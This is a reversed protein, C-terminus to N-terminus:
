KGMDYVEIKTIVPANGFTLYMVPNTKLADIMTDPIIIGKGGWLSYEFTQQDKSITKEADMTGIILSGVKDENDVEFTIKLCPKSIKSWDLELFSQYGWSNFTIMSEDTSETTQVFKEPEEKTVANGDIGINTGDNKAWTGTWTWVPVADADIDVPTITATQKGTTNEIDETNGSAGTISNYLEAVDSYLMLCDNRDFYMGPTDWLVPLCGHAAAIQMVDTLWDIVGDKKPNCVGFEGVIVGYGEDTFRTLKDFNAETTEKDAETYEGGEVGDGCFEWPTYYHVSVSLKTNANEEIDVPMQFKSDTTKTIDTNFGAILLHRYTNNGGSNRVIDVFTQNMKNTLEYCEENTLTGTVGNYETNFGLNGENVSDGFEENASEFILHDSYDKFRDAIQTWYDTYKQIALERSETDATGDENTAGFQGWWGYDYHENIIVYMGNNLAYNVIEEVRGLMKESITNKGDDSVISSWAIPIRITNFGYSHIADIYEQTTIPASWAQEFDTAETFDDKEDIAKTAEMTNGLNIGEGMENAILYQSSLDKRMSGNDKVIMTDTTGGVISIERDEGINSTDDWKVTFEDPNDEIPTSTETTTEQTVDKTTETSKSDNACGLVGTALTAIMTFMSVMIGIRKKRM